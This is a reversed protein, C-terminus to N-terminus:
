WCNKSYLTNETPIVRLKYPTKFEFGVTGGLNQYYINDQYCISLYKQRLQQWGAGRLQKTAMLDHTTVRITMKRSLQAIGKRMSCSGLHLKMQQM